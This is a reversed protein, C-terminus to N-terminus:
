KAKEAWFLGPQPRQCDTDPNRQDAHEDPVIEAAYQCQNHSEDPRIHSAEQMGYLGPHPIM